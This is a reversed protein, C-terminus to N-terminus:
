IALENNSYHRGCYCETIRFSVLVEMAINKLACNHQVELFTFSATCPITDAGVVCARMVQMVHM